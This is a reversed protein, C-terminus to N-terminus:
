LDNATFECHRWSSNYASAAFVRQDDSYTIKRPRNLM